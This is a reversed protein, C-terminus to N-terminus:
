RCGHTCTTRFKGQRQIGDESAGQSRPRLASVSGRGFERFGQLRCHRFRTPVAADGCGDRANFQRGPRRGRPVAPRRDGGRAGFPPHTSSPAPPGAQGEGAAGRDCHEGNCQPGSGTGRRQGPLVVDPGWRRGSLDLGQSSGFARLQDLVHRGCRRDLGIVGPGHWLLRVSSCWWIRRHRGRGQFSWMCCRRVPLRGRGSRCGMCAFTSRACSTRRSGTPGRSELQKLHSVRQRRPGIRRAPLVERDRRIGAGSEAARRALKPLVRHAHAHM